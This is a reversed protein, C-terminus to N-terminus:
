FSKYRSRCISLRPFKGPIVLSSPAAARRLDALQASCKLRSWSCSSIPSLQMAERYTNDAKARSMEAEKRADEALKRQGETIVRQQQAATEVRQNKISDPPNAKGVTIDILAIPLGAKLVYEELSKSVEADIAEIAKTDIATENMGHKRVAQRVRNMFEAKLNNDYWDKGFAQILKVSDTVRYRIIADFDLPVGDSSMIDEFHVGAQQPQVNVVVQDTTWAVYSRGTKITEPLVGGKGFLIPKSILVVEEGPGPKVADIMTAFGILGAVVIIGAVIALKVGGSMRENDNHM